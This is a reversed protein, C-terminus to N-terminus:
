VTLIKKLLDNERGEILTVFDAGRVNKSRLLEIERGTESSFAKAQIDYQDEGYRVAQKVLVLRAMVFVNAGLVTGIPKCYKKNYIYYPRIDKKLLKHIDMMVHNQPAHSAVYEELKELLQPTGGRHDYGGSVDEPLFVIKPISGAVAAHAWCTFLFILIVIKKM